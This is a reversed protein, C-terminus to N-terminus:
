DSLTRLAVGPKQTADEPLYADLQAERLDAVFRALFRSKHQLLTKYAAVVGEQAAQNADPHCAAHQSLASLLGLQVAAELQRPAQCCLANSLAFVCEKLVAPNSEEKMMEILKDMLQYDLAAQIQEFSGAMINSTIWAVEKRMHDASHDMLRALHRLVGLNIAVQTIHTPGSILNGFCRLAYRATNADESSLLEALVDTCNAHLMLELRENPGDTVYSLGACADRLNDPNTQGLHSVYFDILTSVMSVDLPPKRILINNLLWLCTPLVTQDNRVETPLAMVCDIAGLEFMKQAFEACDGAINALAWTCQATLEAAINSNVHKLLLPVFGVVLRHVNANVIRDIIQGMSHSLKCTKVGEFGQQRHQLGSSVSIDLNDYTGERALNIVDHKAYIDTVQGEANLVPLASVRKEVFLELARIIPDDPKLTAINKYTGIMLDGLKISLMSPRHENHMNAHIFHLIRKHTLVSLANGTLSDIVPLRHIKEELLLRTATHLSIMPDVCVLVDPRHRRSMERWSRIRHEELEIMQTQPSVYYRRLIKIFDTVTIMGVFQQRRSDWLPASRIGNQVLAFFAKKVKLDIDFVVMKVSPPMIDYCTVDSLFRPVSGSRDFSYSRLRVDSESASSRQRRLSARASDSQRRPPSESANRVQPGSHSRPRNGAPSPPPSETLLDYAARAGTTTIAAHPPSAPAAATAPSPQPPLADDESTGLLQHGDNLTIMPNKPRAM